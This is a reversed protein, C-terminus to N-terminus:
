KRGQNGAEYGQQYAKQESEKQKGYLYGGGAGVAGGIAAGLGASGAIAGIITQAPLGPGDLIRLWVLREIKADEVKGARVLRGIDDEFVQKLLICSCFVDYNEAVAGEM